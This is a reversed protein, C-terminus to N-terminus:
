ASQEPRIFHTIGVIILAPAFLERYEDKFDM